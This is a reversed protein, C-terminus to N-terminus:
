KSTPKFALHRAAHERFARIHELDISSFEVEAQRGDKVAYAQRMESLLGRLVAEWYLARKLFDHL